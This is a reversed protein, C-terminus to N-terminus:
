LEAGAEARRQLMSLRLAAFWVTWFAIMV